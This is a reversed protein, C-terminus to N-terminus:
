MFTRGLFETARSGYLRRGRIYVYKVVERPPDFPPDGTRTGILVIVEAIGSDNDRSEQRAQRDMSNYDLPGFLPDGEKERVFFQAPQGVETLRTPLPDPM